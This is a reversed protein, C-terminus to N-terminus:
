ELLEKPLQAQTNAQLEFAPYPLLQGDEAAARLSEELDGALRRVTAADFLDRRYEIWGALGEGEASLELNLDLRPAAAVLEVPRVTLGEAGPVAWDFSPERFAVAVQFLPARDLDPEPALAEVLCEFPLERHALAALTEDRVRALLQRFPPEGELSVRLALANAFPGVAGELERRGSVTSGVLLETQGAARALLSAFAALVTMELTAGESRGVRELGRRLEPPIEMRERGGLGGAALPRPRDTPLALETPAGALHEWWWILDGALAEGALWRRQWAAFDGAQLAPEGLGAPVGAYLAVLERALVGISGRDGALAHRTLLCIADKDTRRMLLARLLHGLGLDFPRRAEEAALRLGEGERASEPLARLDVEPLAVAGAPQVVQVPGDPGAAFRTRLAEHRRAVESLARALAAAELPGVLRLAGPLNQFPRGPDLRELLWFREQAFSLPLEGDRDVREIPPLLALGVRLTSEVREALSMVTPAEFLSRLPLEVGLADRVRAVVRTALLSHGGLHFFSDTRAVGTIGLVEAFVGSLIEEIPTRPGEREEGSRALDPEPLARRDVKGTATLPLEDLRVFASPVLAAPLFGRLYDRLVGPRVDAEDAVVYAVLAMGGPLDRAVVVAERVGAHGRLAAEVEGPEVRFGRIKVQDDVRGLFEVTGDALWRVLDGSRYLRGGPLEGFGDPV